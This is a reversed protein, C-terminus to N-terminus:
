QFLAPFFSPPLASSSKISVEKTKWQLHISDMALKAACPSWSEKLMLRPESRERLKHYGFLLKPGQQTTNILEFSISNKGEVTLLFAKESLM